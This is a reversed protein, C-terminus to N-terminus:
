ERLAHIREDLAEVVAAVTSVDADDEEYQDFMTGHRANFNSWFRSSFLWESLLGSLRLQSAGDGVSVLSEQMRM